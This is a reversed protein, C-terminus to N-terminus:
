DFESILQQLNKKCWEEETFKPFIKERSVQKGKGVYRGTQNVWYYETPIENQVAIFEAFLLGVLLEEERGGWSLDGRAIRIKESDKISSLVPKIKEINIKSYKEDTIGSAYVNNERRGLLPPKKYTRHVLIFRRYLFNFSDFPSFNISEMFNLIREKQYDNQALYAVFNKKEM